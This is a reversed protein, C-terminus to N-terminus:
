VLHVAAPSLHSTNAQRCHAFFPFLYSVGGYRVSKAKISADFDAYLVGDDITATTNVFTEGDKSVQM